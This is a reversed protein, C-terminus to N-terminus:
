CVIDFLARIGDGQTCAVTVLPFMTYHTLSALTSNMEWINCKVYTANMDQDIIKFQCSADMNKIM